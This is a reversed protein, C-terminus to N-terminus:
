ENRAAKMNCPHNSLFESITENTLTKFFRMLHNPEPFGFEFAIESTTKDTYILQFQIEVSAHMRGLKM